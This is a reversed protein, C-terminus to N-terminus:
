HKLVKGTADVEVEATRKDSTTVHFEYYDVEKKLEPGKRVSEVLNIKAGPHRGQVAKMVADPVENEALQSEVLVLTGNEQFTVDMNHNEHTMELEFVTKGDEKEKSAERIKAGPFKARASDMVAKPVQDLTIKTEQARAGPTLGFLAVFGLMVVWGSLARTMMVNDGMRGIRPSEQCNSSNKSAPGPRRETEVLAKALLMGPAGLEHGLLEM